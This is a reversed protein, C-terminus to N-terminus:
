KKLYLYKLSSALTLAFGLCAFIIIEWIEKLTYKLNTFGYIFQNMNNIFLEKFFNGFIIFIILIAILFIGNIYKIRSIYLSYVSGLSYSTIFVLLIALVDLIKIRENFLVPIICFLASIIIANLVNIILSAYVFHHRDHKLAYYTDGSVSYNLIGIIISFAIELIYLIAYLEINGIIKILAIGIGVLVFNIIYLLYSSALQLKLPQLLHNM